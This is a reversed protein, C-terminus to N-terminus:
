NDTEMTIGSVQLKQSEKDEFQAVNNTISFKIVDGVKANNLHGNLIFTISKPEVMVEVKTTENNSIVKAYISHKPFSNIIPIAAVKGIKFTSLFLLAGVVFFWLLDRFFSKM